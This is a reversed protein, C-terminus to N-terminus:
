LDAARFRDLLGPVQDRDCANRMSWWGGSSTRPQDPPDIMMVALQIDQDVVNEIAAPL